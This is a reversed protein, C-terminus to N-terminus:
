QSLPTNGANSIGHPLPRGNEDVHVMVIKEITVVVRQEGFLQRVECRFLLSTRGCAMLQLGIEIVEGKKVSSLFNIESFYKTVVRRTKVRAMACIAVEEDVWKLLSGGFLSGSPNLDGPRIMKRTHFQM